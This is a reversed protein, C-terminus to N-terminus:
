RRARRADLQARVEAAAAFLPAIFARHSISKDAPVRIEGRLAGGPHVILRM